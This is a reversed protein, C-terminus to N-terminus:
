QAVEIRNYKPCDPCDRGRSLYPTCHGHPRALCESVCAQNYEEIVRQLREIEGQRQEAVRRFADASANAALLMHNADALDRDKAAIAEAAAALDEQWAYTYTQM